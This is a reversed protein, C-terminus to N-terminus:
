SPSADGETMVVPKELLERAAEYCALSTPGALIAWGVRDRASRLEPVIDGIEVSVRWSELTVDSRLRPRDAIDTVTGPLATFLVSAASPSRPSGAVPRVGLPWGLCVRRWNIGTTLHVLEAIGGGGPRNHTEIIRVTDGEVKLETHAPGDTLGLADLLEAVSEAILEHHRFPLGVPPMLHLVEMFGPTTGKEAIAIVQHRGAASFSEVSYEKGEAFEEFLYGERYRPDAADDARTLLRIERSGTGDVPKAVVKRGRAFLEDVAQPNLPDAYAVNLHPAKSALIVRTMLKNRTAAVVQSPVAPLRLLEALVAAPELAHETVSVVAKPALPRLEEALATLAARDQWSRVLVTDVADRPECFVRSGPSQVFVLPEDLSQAVRAINPSADLIILTM